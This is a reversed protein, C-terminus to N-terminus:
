GSEVGEVLSGQAMHVRVGDMHLARGPLPMGITRAKQFM